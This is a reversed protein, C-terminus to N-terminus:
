LGLRQKLRNFFFKRSDKWDVIGRIAGVHLMRQPTDHMDAFTNAIQVFTPKVSKFHEDLRAKMDLCGSHAIELATPDNRMMLEFLANTRFKIETTGSPELVGGRATPDAYMEIMDPNIRSDVVVWAGGRLEAKPPLYVFVPNSFKVLADVIYSGFKLIENFMDRQGGSFGRWNALIMLPLGEKNFDFIAQATKYASDPYWVQGAQARAVSQSHPDAPDAPQYFHTQRTEVVVVGIPIGGIRARGVIVSRAWASQVEIFSNRDFIKGLLDRSDGIEPLDVPRDVPDSVAQYIRLPSNIKEPIFQIWKLISEIGESDTKVTLHSVGNRYMVGVGGIEDNSTYVNSGILKNLAQYGTLLIPSDMKQIVRQCLRSVYAGIGVTRGTVYTLTFIEDYSKSSEGAIAGSWVLNEVGIYEGDKGIVDTIMWKNTGDVRQAIVMDRVRDYDETELYLYEYGQSIDKPNKWSIKLCKQVDMCLGMRAGSNCAIFIRPIGFRRAYESAKLYLRDEDVSFTGIQYTIDNAIFVVKRSTGNMEPTALDFIWAVMGCYQPEMVDEILSLEDADSTILVLQKGSVLPISPLPTEGWLNRVCEELLLPLDYIFFTSAELAIQRRKSVNNDAMVMPSINSYSLSARLEGSFSRPSTPAHMKLYHHFHEPFKKELIGTATSILSAHLQPNLSELIDLLIAVDPSKWEGVLRGLLDM